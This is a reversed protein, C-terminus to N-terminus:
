RYNQKEFALLYEKREVGGGYGVMKGDKGIVRHCPVIISLPNKNNAGGVARVARPVGIRTAIDSYSCTEGYPIRTLADWVKQQFETGYFYYNISFHQREGNFYEELQKIIPEFGKETQFLAKSLSHKKVWKEIQEKKNQYTGFDLRVLSNDRRILTITGVPTDIEWYALEHM